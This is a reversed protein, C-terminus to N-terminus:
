ARSSGQYRERCHGRAHSNEACIWEHLDLRRHQRTIGAVRLQSVYSNCTHRDYVTASWYQKTPVNAPVALRYTHSGELPRGDKDKGELLYFQATGLRKIGIYGISYTLARADIPYIDTEAYASSGAEVLEPFAPVAWRANPFFPPFGADLKQDLWDRAEIAAANLIEITRADPNFTKGKEIGITKLPDIMAKDRALWPETQVIRDLSRFFRVDYPITSDYLVDKADTFKTEGPDNAKSLPYVKLRKGYAVAKAVDAASHSTLNSRLLAYGGVTDSQLAIYGDLAKEKYGPPLILYKGGAGKDAGNPGADELPMQWINDINAAFSSGNAPPVDIVLPGDATNFFVMFYIADPNPTLTQNHWDVPRSRYVIENQKAPTTILMEQLMLDYNVAPMGWIVAEIARREILRHTLERRSRSRPLETKMDVVDALPDRQAQKLKRM